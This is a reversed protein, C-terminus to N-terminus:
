RLEEMGAAPCLRLEGARGAIAARTRGAGAQAPGVRLPGLGTRWIPERHAIIPVKEPAFGMCWCLIADIAFPDSGFLLWDTDRRLPQLPGNGEGSILGDMICFYHRQPEPQLQGERDACQIVLNLDYIM